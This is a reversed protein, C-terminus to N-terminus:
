QTLLYRFREAPTMGRKHILEDNDNDDFLLPPMTPISVIDNTLHPRSPVPSPLLRSPATYTYPEITDSDSVSFTDSEIEKEKVDIHKVPSNPNEFNPLSSNRMLKRRRGKPKKSKRTKTVKLKKSKENEESQSNLPKVTRNSKTKDDSQTPLLDSNLSHEMLKNENNQTLPDITKAKSRKRRVIIRHKTKRTGSQTKMPEKAKNENPRENEIGTLKKIPLPEVSKSRSM